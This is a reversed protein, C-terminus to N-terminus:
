YFLKNINKIFIDNSSNNKLFEKLDKYISLKSKYLIVFVNKENMLNEIYQIRKNMYSELITKSITENIKNSSIFKYIDQIGINNLEYIYKPIFEFKNFNIYDENNFRVYDYMSLILKYNNIDYDLTDLIEKFNSEFKTKIFTVLLSTSCIAKKFNDKYNKDNDFVSLALNYNIKAKGNLDDDINNILCYNDFRIFSSQTSKEDNKSYYNVNLDM